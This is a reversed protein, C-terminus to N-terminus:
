LKGTQKNRESVYAFFIKSVAVRLWTFYHKTNKTNVNRKVYVILM